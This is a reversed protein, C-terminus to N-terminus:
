QLLGRGLKRQSKRMLRDLCFSGVLRQQHSVRRTDDLHFVWAFYCNVFANSFLYAYLEARGYYSSQYFPDGQNLANRYKAYLPMLPAGYYFSARLGVWRWQAAIEALLGHPTFTTKSARERQYGVVYGCRATLSDLGLRAALDVGLYAHAYADDCVGEYRGEGYSAKHNLQAYGGLLLWRWRFEGNLLLLFMERKERTPLGRWDCMFEGYGRTSEYRMYAGEINPRAYILSDYRLYNPLTGLRASYPIAGLMVTFGRQRMSLYVTPAFHAQRWDSGMPQRYHVGGILAYDGWVSDRLSVGVAPSLRFGYLTQSLQHHAEYERNDFYSVFDVDYELRQAAAHFPAILLLLSALGNSLSLRARM